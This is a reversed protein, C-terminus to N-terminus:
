TALKEVSKEVLQNTVDLMIESTLESIGQQESVSLMESCVSINGVIMSFTFRAEIWRLGHVVRRAESEDPAEFLQVNGNNLTIIISKEPVAYPYSELTTSGVARQVSSVDFFSITEKVKSKVIPKRRRRTSPQIVKWVFNPEICGGKADSIQLNVCVDQQTIKVGKSRPIHHVLYIGDSTIDELFTKNSGRNGQKKAHYDRTFDSEDSDESMYDSEDDNYDRGNRGRRDKRSAKNGRKSNRRSRSSSKSCNDDDSCDDDDDIEHAYYSSAESGGSYEDSSYYDFDEKSTGLIMNSADLLVTQSQHLAEALPGFMGLSFGAGENSNNEKEKSDRDRRSQSQSKEIASAENVGRNYREEEQQVKLKMQRWKDHKEKQIQESSRQDVNRTSSEDVPTAVGHKRQYRMRAMASVDGSNNHNQNSQKRNNSRASKSMSSSSPACEDLPGEDFPADGISAATVIRAPEEELDGNVDGNVDPNLHIPLSPERERESRADPNLDKEFNLDGAFLSVNGVPDFLGSALDGLGDFADTFLDNSTSAFTMSTSKDISVDFSSQETAITNNLLSTNTNANPKEQSKSMSKLKSVPMPENPDKSSSPSLSLEQRSSSLGGHDHVDDHDHDDDHDRTSSLQIDLDSGSGDNLCTEIEEM